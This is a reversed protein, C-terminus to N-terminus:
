VREKNCLKDLKLEWTVSDKPDWKDLAVLIQLQQEQRFKNAPRISELAGLLSTLPKHLHIKTPLPPQPRHTKAPLASPLTSPVKQTNM